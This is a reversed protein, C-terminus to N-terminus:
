GTITINPPYLAAAQQRLRELARYHPMIWREALERVASSAEQQKAASDTVFVHGPNKADRRLAEQVAPREALGPLLAFHPAVQAFLAHPLANYNVLLLRTDASHAVAKELLAGLMRACYENAPMGIVAELPLDLLDLGLLGPIMYQAPRRLHSVLLEVPDRYLFLLPVDPWAQRILPLDAIHWADAKIFLRQEPGRRVQGWASVLARLWPVQWAPDLGPYWQRVSRLLVDLPPPESHTIYEDVAALVQAILTSGCRSAHLVIGGLPVGPTTNAWDVLTSIPTQRRFALNYPQQLARQAALHFFADTFPAQGVDLWDVWPGNTHPYIRIPLSHQFM